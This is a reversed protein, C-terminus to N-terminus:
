MLICVVNRVCSLCSPPATWRYGRRRGYQSYWPEWCGWGSQRRWVQRYICPSRLNTSRGKLNKHQYLHYISSPWDMSRDLWRNLWSASLAGPRRCLTSHDKVEYVAMKWPFSVDCASQLELLINSNSSPITSYMCEYYALNLYILYQM